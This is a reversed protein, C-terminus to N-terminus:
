NDRHFQEYGPCKLNPKAMEPPNWRCYNNCRLCKGAPENNIIHNAFAPDTLSAKGVDVMDVGTELANIVDERSNVNHVGFIPMDPYEKKLLSAGYIAESCPFGEPRTGQCETGYSVDIFDTYPVIEKANELGDELLPEFIGFRIGVIFDDGVAKRVAQLTEAAFLARNRGYEDIRTNFKRNFFCSILYGHCGHLEVGDFGAKKARVAAAAFDEQTKKICERSMEVGRIGDRYDRSSPADALPDIGNGGAHLLQIFAKAGNEHIVDSIKKLGEIQGDEWIGLESEHLKSRETIATAEVIVLGAGGAALERYHEINRDSVYGNEQPWYFCVMPPIAIRNRITLNKIRLSENVM